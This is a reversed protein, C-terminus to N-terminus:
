KKRERKEQHLMLRKLLDSPKETGKIMQSLEKGSIDSMESLADLYEGKGKNADSQLAYFNKVVYKKVSKRAYFPIAEGDWETEDDPTMNLFYQQPSYEWMGGSAADTTSGILGGTIINGFFWPSVISTVNLVLERYGSKRGTFLMDQSTRKLPVACPTKCIGFGNRNITVNPVNSDFFVTQETGNILSSCGSMFLPFVLFFIRKM